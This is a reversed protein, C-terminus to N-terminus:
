DEIVGNAVLEDHSPGSGLLDVLDDGFKGHKSQYNNSWKRGFEPDVIHKSRIKEEANGFALGKLYKVAATARNFSDELKTPKKLIKRLSYINGNHKLFIPKMTTTKPYKFYQFNVLDLNSWDFTAQIGIICTVSM